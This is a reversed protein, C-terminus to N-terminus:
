KSHGFGRWQFGLEWLCLNTGSQRRVIGGWHRFCHSVCLWCESIQQIRIYHTLCRNFVILYLHTYIFMYIHTFVCKVYIMYIEKNPFLLKASTILHLSQLHSWGPNNVHAKFGTVLTRILASQCLFPFVTYSLLLSQTWTAVLWPTGPTVLLKSLCPLTKGQLRVFSHPEALV